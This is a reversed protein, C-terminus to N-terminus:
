LGQCRALVTIHCVQVARGDFEGRNTGQAFPSTPQAAIGPQLINSGHVPIQPESLQMSTSLYDPRRPEMTWM